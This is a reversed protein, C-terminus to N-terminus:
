VSGRGGRGGGCNGVGGAAPIEGSTSSVMEGDGGNVELSGEITMDGTVLWVMPKSGQGIVRYDRPIHVNRFQFVGGSVNLSRGSRLEVRTFDTNLITEPSVPEYDLTADEGEFALSARLGNEVLEAVPELFPAELDVAGGGEFREIIADFQPEHRA